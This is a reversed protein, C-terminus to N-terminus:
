PATPSGVRFSKRTMREVFRDADKAPCNAVAPQARAGVLNAEINFLRMDVNIFKLPQSHRPIPGARGTQCKPKEAIAKANGVGGGELVPKAGLPSPPGM